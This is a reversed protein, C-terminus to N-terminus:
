CSKPRPPEAPGPREPSSRPAKPRSTGSATRSGSHTSSRKTVTSAPAAPWDSSPTVPCPCATAEYGHRPSEPRSSSRRSRTSEPRIAMPLPLRRSGSSGSRTRSSRESRTRSSRKGSVGRFLSSSTHIYEELGHFPGDEFRVQVRGGRGVKALLKVHLCPVGPQLKERFAYLKGVTLSASDM